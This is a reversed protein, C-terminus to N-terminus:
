DYVNDDCIGTTSIQHNESSSPSADGHIVDSRVYFDTLGLQM